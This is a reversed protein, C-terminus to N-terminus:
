KRILLYPILSGKYMYYLFVIILYQFIGFLFIKCEYKFDKEM